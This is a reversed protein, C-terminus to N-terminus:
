TLSCSFVTAFRIRLFNRCFSFLSNFKSPWSNFTVFTQKTQRELKKKKLFDSYKQDWCGESSRHFARIMSSSSFTIYVYIFVSESYSKATHKCYTCIHVYTCYTCIHIEYMRVTHVFMYTTYVYLISLIYRTCVYLIYLCTHRVYTCYTCIHIEYM